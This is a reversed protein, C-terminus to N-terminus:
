SPHAEMFEFPRAKIGRGRASYEALLKELTYTSIFLVSLLCVTSQILMLTFVCSTPTRACVCTLHPTPERVCRLSAPYQQFDPFVVQPFVVGCCLVGFVTAAWWLSNLKSPWYSVRDRLQRILTVTLIFISLQQSRQMLWEKNSGM